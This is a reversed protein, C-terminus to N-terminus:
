DMYSSYRVNEYYIGGLDRLEGRGLLGPRRNNGNYGLIAATRQNDRAINGALRELFQMHRSGQSGTARTEAAALCSALIGPGHIQGGLPFSQQETLRRAVAQYQFHLAYAADPTPHLELVQRQPAEGTSDDSRVSAWRPPSQEEQRNALKLTQSTNTFPIPAYYDGQDEEYAIEGLPRDFNDPLDYTRQNAATTFKYIPRMFTWEHVITMNLAFPPPLPPPFYYQRLGEDMVELVEQQQVDDLEAYNYTAFMQQAIRRRLLFFDITLDDARNDIPFTNNPM